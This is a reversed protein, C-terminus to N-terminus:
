TRRRVLYALTVAAAAGVTAAALRGTRQSLATRVLTPVGSLTPRMRVQGASTVHVRGLDRGQSTLRVPIDALRDLPVSVPLDRSLGRGPVCRLLTAPDTVDLVLGDAGDLNAAGAGDNSLRAITSGREDGVEITLDALFALRSLAPEPM